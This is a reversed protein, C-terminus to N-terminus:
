KLIQMCVVVHDKGKGVDCRMSRVLRMEFVQMCVVHEEDSCSDTTFIVLFSVVCAGFSDCKWGQMWVVHDDDSCSETTFIVRLLINLLVAPQLKYQKVNGVRM